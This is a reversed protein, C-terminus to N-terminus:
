ADEEARARALTVPEFRLQEGPATQALRDLDGDVVCGIKTYGGTTPGDALLILLTGDAPSQIAGPVIGDSLIEASGRHALHPGRLRMGSRDRRVTVEYPRGAFAAQADITFADTQPGLIV